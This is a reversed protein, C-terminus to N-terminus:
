LTNNLYLSSYVEQGLVGSTYERNEEEKVIIENLSTREVIENFM